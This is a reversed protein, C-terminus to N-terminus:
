VVVTRRLRFRLVYSSFEDGDHRADYQIEHRWTAASGAPESKPLARETIKVLVDTDDFVGGFQRFMDAPLIKAADTRDSAERANLTFMDLAIMDAPAWAAWLASTSLVVAAIMPIM